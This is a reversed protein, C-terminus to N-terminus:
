QLRPYTQTPGTQSWLGVSLFVAIVAATKSIEM